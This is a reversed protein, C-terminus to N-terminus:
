GPETLDNGIVDDGCAITSLLDVQHQQGPLRYTGTTSKGNRASTGNLVILTRTYTVTNNVETEINLGVLEPVGDGSGDVDACGVGTGTGRFGLDFTYTAHQANLVPTIKCNVFAYLLATRGDSIIIEVPGRADMNAVLAKLPQPGALPVTISSVGGTATTIGFRRGGKGVKPFWATDPKGDGDLDVTQRTASGAPAGVGTNAPCGTTPALATSSPSSPNTVEPVSPFGSASTSSTAAGKIPQERCAGLGLGGTAVLVFAAGLRRLADPM